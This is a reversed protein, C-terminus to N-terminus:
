QAAQLRLHIQMVRWLYAQEAGRWLRQWTPCIWGRESARSFELLRGRGLLLGDDIVIRKRNTPQDRRHRRCPNVMLISWERALCVPREAQDSASQQVEVSRHPNCWRAGRQCNCPAYQGREDRAALVEVVGRPHGIVEVRQDGARVGFMPGVARMVSHGTHVIFPRAPDKALRSCDRV